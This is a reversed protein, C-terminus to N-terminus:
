RAPTKAKPTTAPKLKLSRNHLKRKRLRNYRSKDGNIASM